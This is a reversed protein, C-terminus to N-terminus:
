AEAAMRKEDLKQELEKLRKEMNGRFSLYDILMAIFVVDIFWPLISIIFGIGESADYIM